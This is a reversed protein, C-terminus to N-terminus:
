PGSPAGLDQRVMAIGFAAGCDEVAIPLLIDMFQRYEHSISQLTHSTSSSFSGPQKPNERLSLVGPSGGTAVACRHKSVDHYEFIRALLDSSQEWLAKVRPFYRDYGTRPNDRTGGLINAPGIQRLSRADTIDCFQDRARAFGLANLTFVFCELSSDMGFLIAGARSECEVGWQNPNVEIGDRQVPEFQFRNLDAFDRAVGMIRALMGRLGDRYILLWNDHDGVTPDMVVIGGLDWLANVAGPVDTFWLELPQSM